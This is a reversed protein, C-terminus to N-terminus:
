SLAIVQKPAWFHSVALNYFIQFSLKDHRKVHPERVDWIIIWNLEPLLKQRWSDLQTMAKNLHCLNGALFGLTFDWSTIWELAILDNWKVKLIMIRWGSSNGSNSLPTGALQLLFIACIQELGAIKTFSKLNMTSKKAFFLIENQKLLNQIKYSVVFRSTSITADFYISGTRLANRSTLKIQKNWNLDWSKMEDNSLQRSIFKTISKTHFNSSISAWSKLIIKHCASKERM